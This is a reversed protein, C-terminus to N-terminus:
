KINYMGGPTRMAGRIDYRTSRLSSPAALEPIYYLSAISAQICIDLASTCKTAFQQLDYLHGLMPALSAAALDFLRSLPLMESMPKSPFLDVLQQGSSSMVRLAMTLIAEYTDTPSQSYAKSTAILPRALASFTHIASEAFLTTGASEVSLIPDACAQLLRFLITSAMSAACPSGNLTKGESSTTSSMTRLIDRVNNRERELEDDNNVGLDLFYGTPYACQVALSLSSHYFHDTLASQLDQRITANNHSLLELTAAHLNFLTEVAFERVYRSSWGCVQQISSAVSAFLQLVDQSPSGGFYERVTFPLCTNACAVLCGVPGDGRVEDDVSNKIQDLELALLAQFSDWTTMATQLAIMGRHRVEHEAAVLQDQSTRNDLLEKQRKKSKNSQKKKNPQQSGQKQILSSALVREITWSGSEMIAIWYRLAARVTPNTELTEIDRASQFLEQVIPLSKEVFHQPLPAHRAWEECLYLFLTKQDVMSSSPLQSLSECVEEIGHSRVETTVATFCRPDISMTGTGGIRGPALIADPVVSMCTYFVHLYTAAYHDQSPTSLSSPLFQQTLHLAHLITGVVPKTNPAPNPVSLTTYRLRGATVALLSALTTLLPRIRILNEPTSMFSALTVQYLIPMVTMLTLQGKVREEDLDNPNVHQQLFRSIAPNLQEIWSLYAQYIEKPDAQPFSSTIPPEFEIDISESPKVRRSRHLLTQSAFLAEAFDIHHKKQGHENPVIGALLALSALWTSGFDDPELVDQPRTQQDIPKGGDAFSRLKRRINRAQFQVLFDHAERQSAPSQIPQGHLSYIIGLALRLRQYLFPEGPNGSM